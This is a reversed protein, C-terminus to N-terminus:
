LILMLMVKSILSHARLSEPFPNQQHSKGEVFPSHQVLQTPLIEVQPLIFCKFCKKYNKPSEQM